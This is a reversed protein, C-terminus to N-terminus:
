DNILLGLHDLVGQFHYSPAMRWLFDPREGSKWSGGIIEDDQNLNLRYQYDKHAVVQETTGNIVYWTNRQSEDIYFVRTEVKVTRVTGETLKESPDNNVDVVKSTYAVIPHNWVEKFRKVDMLFSKQKLGITNALAIHFSGPNVDDKCEAPTNIGLIRRNQDCRKGIQHTTVVQHHTAYYYSILAKIDASGFPIKIGDPNVLNKPVPENHHTSAAAWGNCIGEWDKADANSKQSVESTLPYDYRGLFLDYKESPSLEALDEYRMLKAQSRDPTSRNQGQYTKANWRQNINGKNLPWYDGSWFKKGDRSDGKLPLSAFQKTDSYDFMETDYFVVPNNFVPEQFRLDPEAMKGAPGCSALATLSVLALTLKPFM